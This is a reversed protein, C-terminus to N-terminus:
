IADFQMMLQLYVKGDLKGQSNEFGHLLMWTGGNMDDRDAFFDCHYIIQTNDSTIKYVDRYENDPEIYYDESFTIGHLKQTEESFYDRMELYKSEAIESLEDGTMDNDYFALYINVTRSKLLGDKDFRYIEKYSGGEKVSGWKKTHYDTLEETSHREDKELEGVISEVEDLSMGLSVDMSNEFPMPGTYEYFKAEKSCATFCLTLCILIILIATKKKM